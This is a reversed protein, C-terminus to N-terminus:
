STAEGETLEGSRVRVQYGSGLSGLSPRGQRQGGAGLRWGRALIHATVVAGLSSGM